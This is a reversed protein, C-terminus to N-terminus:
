VSMSTLTVVAAMSTTMAAAVTCGITVPAVSYIIMVTVVMCGITAPTALSKTM